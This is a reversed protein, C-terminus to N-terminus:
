YCLQLLCFWYQVFFINCDLTFMCNNTHQHPFYNSISRTNADLYSGDGYVPLNSRMDMNAVSPVSSRDDPFCPLDHVTSPGSQGGKPMSYNATVHAQANSEGLVAQVRRTLTELNMYEEKSPAITWLFIEVSSLSVRDQWVPNPIQLIKEKLWNHIQEMEPCGRWDISFGVKTSGTQNCLQDFDPFVSSHNRSIGYAKRKDEVPIWSNYEM